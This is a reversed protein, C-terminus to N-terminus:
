DWCPIVQGAGLTFDFTGARDRSSDFKSGDLLTGTYHAKIQSGGIPYNGDGENLMRVAFKGNAEADINDQAAKKTAAEEEKIKKEEALKAKQIFYAAYEQSHKDVLEADKDFGKSQIWANIEKQSHDHRDPYYVDRYQEMDRGISWDDIQVYTETGENLDEPSNFKTLDDNKDLCAVNKM